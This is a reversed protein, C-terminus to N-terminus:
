KALKIDIIFGSQGGAIGEIPGDPNAILEDFERARVSTISIEEGGLTKIIGPFEKAFWAEAAKKSVKGIYGTSFSLGGNYVLLFLQKNYKRIFLKASKEVLPTFEFGASQFIENVKDFDTFFRKGPPVMGPTNQISKPIEDFDLKNFAANVKPSVGEALFSIGALKILRKRDKNM